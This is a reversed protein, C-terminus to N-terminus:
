PSTNAVPWWPLNSAREEGSQSASTFVCLCMRRVQKIPALDKQGKVVVVKHIWIADALAKVDADEPTIVHM